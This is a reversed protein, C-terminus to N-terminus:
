LRGVLLRWLPHRGHGGRSRQPPPQRGLRLLQGSRLYVSRRRRRGALLRGWPDESPTAVPPACDTETQTAGTIDTNWGSFTNCNLTATSRPSDVEVGFGFNDAVDPATRGIQNRDIVIGTSNAAVAVGIDTGAGTITDGSLTVNTAGFLLVATNANNDNGYGSGFITSDTTTGTAGDQYVLGNQGTIGMLSAPPDITSGSVNMTMGYAHIADKNYDSVTTGTITLTQGATGNAWSRGEM